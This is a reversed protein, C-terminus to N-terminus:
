RFFDEICVGDANIIQAYTLRKSAEASIRFEESLYYKARQKAERITDFESEIDCGSNMDEFSQYARVTIMPLDYPM